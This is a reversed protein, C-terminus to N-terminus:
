YGEIVLAPLWAINSVPIDRASISLTIEACIGEIHMTM